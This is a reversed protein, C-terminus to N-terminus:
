SFIDAATIALVDEPNDVTERAAVAYRLEPRANPLARAKRELEGRLRRGDVRRAWKAEGVLTATRERGSLVVADIEHQEDDRGATTWFPGIAVIDDGIEGANALRRLHLRFAEEWRPGMYDDLEQLLVPLITQGLGLDIQSRYRSLVGLWFSLFNDAIRYLRRRSSREDETVPLIRDILRLGRLRELVRTPDTRVVDTIESFKTRGAAIAYLTQSALETSGGETAMVLEGEVLLRGGPTGVLAELNASLDRNPNWWALYQPIGGVIGWVLAQEAPKLGPLMRAAEDPRFPHVLLALDFRGFIPERQEQVAEMTRVASGCLLLRLRTKSRVRDWVSRLVSPLDPTVEVLEPFEDLVVLLPENEAATALAELADTWDTFPRTALDRFGDSLVPAAETSFIRLEDSVPRRAAIHFITRHHRAFQRLLKTKGVRRRGWVIAITGGRSTEWWQDLQGLERSRNVFDM